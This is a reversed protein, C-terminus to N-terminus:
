ARSQRYAALLEDCVVGFPDTLGLSTYLSIFAAVAENETDILVGASPGETSLTENLIGPVTVLAVNDGSESEFFFAGSRHISSGASPESRPVAVAKYIIRQRVLTCSTISALLSALAVANADGEAVTTDEDLHMTVAGKSGTEDQYQLELIPLNLEFM